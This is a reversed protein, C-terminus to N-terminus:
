AKKLTAAIKKVGTIEKAKPGKAPTGAKVAPQAPVKREPQKGKAITTVKTLDASEELKEEDEIEVEVDDDADVMDDIGIDEFDTDDDDGENALLENQIEEFEARLQELADEIDDVRDEVSLDIDAEDTGFEEGDVKDFDSMEGDIEDEDSSIDDAGIDDLLDDQIDDDTEFLPKDEFEIDMDFEDGDSDFDTDLLLDDDGFDDDGEFDEWDEHLSIEQRAMEILAEKFIKRATDVDNHTLSEFMKMLKKNVTM